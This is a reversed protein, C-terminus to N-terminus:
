SVTYVLAVGGSTVAPLGATSWAFSGAGDPGFDYNLTGSVSGSEGELDNVGGPIGGPLGEEDVAGSAEGGSPLGDVIIVPTPEEATVVPDPDPFEPGSSLGETSFGIVPDVAGGVEDLLVFSHGGGAGGAGSAGAGPGAATAE